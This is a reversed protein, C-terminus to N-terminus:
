THSAHPTSTSQLLPPVPAIVQQSVSIRKFSAFGSGDDSQDRRGEDEGVGADADIRPRRDRGRDPKSAAPHGGHSRCRRHTAREARAAADDVARAGGHQGPQDIRVEVEEPEGHARLM